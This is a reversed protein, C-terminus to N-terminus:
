RIKGHTEAMPWSNNKFKGNQEKTKRKHIFHFVFNKNEFIEALHARSIMKVCLSNKILKPTIDIKFKM